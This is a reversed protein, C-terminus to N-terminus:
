KWPNISWGDGGPFHEVTEDMGRPRLSLGEKHFRSLEDGEGGRDGVGHVSPPRGIRNVIEDRTTVGPVIWSTDMERVHGNVVTRSFSCGTLVALLLVQLPRSM